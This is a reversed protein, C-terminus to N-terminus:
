CINYLLSILKPYDIDKTMMSILNLTHNATKAILLNNMDILKTANHTLTMVVSKFEDDNKIQTPFKRIDNMTIIKLLVEELCDKNEVYSLNIVCKSIYLETM